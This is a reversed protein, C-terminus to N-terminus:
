TACTWTCMRAGEYIGPCAGKCMGARTHLAASHTCCPSLLYKNVSYTFSDLEIWTQVASPSLVTLPAPSVSPPGAKNLLEWAPPVPWWLMVMVLDALLFPCRSSFLTVIKSHPQPHPPPTTPSLVRRQVSELNQESSSPHFFKRPLSVLHGM